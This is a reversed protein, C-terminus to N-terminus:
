RNRHNSHAQGQQRAPHALFCLHPLHKLCVPHVRLAPCHHHPLRARAPLVVRREPYEPYEPYQPYEPYARCVLYLPRM